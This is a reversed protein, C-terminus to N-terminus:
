PSFQLFLFAFDVGPQDVFSPVMCHDYKISGRNKSVYSYTQLQHVLGQKFDM